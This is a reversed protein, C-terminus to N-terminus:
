ACCLSYACLQLCLLLCVCVGAPAYVDLCPRLLSYASYPHASCLVCVYCCQEKIGSLLLRAGSGLGNVGARVVEPCDDCGVPAAVASLWAKQPGNEAMFRPSPFPRRRTLSYTRVSRLQVTYCYFKLQPWGSEVLLVSPSFRRLSPEGVLVSPLFHPVAPPWPYSSVSWWYSLRMQIWRARFSLCFCKEDSAKSSWFICPIAFTFPKRPM